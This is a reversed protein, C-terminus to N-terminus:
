MTEAEAKLGEELGFGHLDLVQLSQLVRIKLEVRIKLRV